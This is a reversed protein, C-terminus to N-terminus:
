FFDKKPLPLNDEQFLPLVYHQFTPPLMLVLGRTQLPLSLGLFVGLLWFTLQTLHRGKVKM